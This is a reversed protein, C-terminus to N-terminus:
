SDGPPRSGHESQAEPEVSAQSAGVEERPKSKDAHVSCKM